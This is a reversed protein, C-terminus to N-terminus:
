INFWINTGIVIWVEVDQAFLQKSTLLFVNKMCDQQINLRGRWSCFLFTIKSYNTSKPPHNNTKSAHNYSFIEICLNAFNIEEQKPSLFWIQTRQNSDPLRFQIILSLDQWNKDSVKRIQCLSPQPDSGQRCSDWWEGDTVATATQMVSM